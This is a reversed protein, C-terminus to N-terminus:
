VKIKRKRTKRLRKNKKRSNRRTKRLSRNKRSSKNSSSRKGNIGMKNLFGGISAGGGPERANLAAAAGADPRIAFLKKLRNISVSRGRTYSSYKLHSIEIERLKQLVVAPDDNELIDGALTDEWSIRKSRDDSWKSLRNYSASLLHITKNPDAFTIVKNNCSSSECIEKSFSSLGPTNIMANKTESNPISTLTGTNTRSYDRVALYLQLYNFFYACGFYEKLIINKVSNEISEDDLLDLYPFGNINMKYAEKFLHYMLNNLKNCYDENSNINPLVESWFSKLQNLVNECIEHNKSVILFYNETIFNFDDDKIGILKNQIPVITDIYTKMTISEFIDSSLEILWSACVDSPMYYCTFGEKNQEVLDDLSNVLFTSIDVWVGGMTYLYYFRLADSKHAPGVYENNLLNLLWEADKISELCEDWKSIFNIVWGKAPPHLIEIRNKFFLLTEDLKGDSKRNFNLWLFHIIKPTM